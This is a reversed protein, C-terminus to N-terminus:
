RSISSRLIEDSGPGPGPESSYENRQVDVTRNVKDHAKKSFSKTFSDRLIKKTGFRNSGTPLTMHEEGPGADYPNEDTDSSSM